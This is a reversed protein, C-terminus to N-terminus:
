TNTCTTYFSLVQAELVGTSVKRFGMPGPASEKKAAMLEEFENRDSECRIDDPAKQVYRLIAEHLHSAKFAHRFFRVM